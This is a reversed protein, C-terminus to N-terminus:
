VSGCEGARPGGPEYGGEAERFMGAQAGGYIEAPIAQSVLEFSGVFM